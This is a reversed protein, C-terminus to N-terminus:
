TTMSEPGDPYVVNVCCRMALSEPETLMWDAYLCVVALGSSGPLKM